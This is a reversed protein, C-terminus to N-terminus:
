RTGELAQYNSSPKKPEEKPLPQINSEPKPEEPLPGYIPKEPPEVYDKITIPPKEVAAEEGKYGPEKGEFVKGLFYGSSWLVAVTM